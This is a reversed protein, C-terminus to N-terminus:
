SSPIRMHWEPQSGYLPDLDAGHYSLWFGFARVPSDAGSQPNGSLLVEKCMHYNGLVATSPKHNLTPHTGWYLGWYVVIRAIVVGGQLIYGQKPFSGSPTTYPCGEWQSCIDARNTAYM